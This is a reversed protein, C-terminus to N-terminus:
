MPRLASYAWNLSPSWGGSHSNLFSSETVSLDQVTRKASFGVPSIHYMYNRRSYLLSVLETHTFVM